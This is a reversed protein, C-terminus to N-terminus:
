RNKPINIAELLCIKSGKGSFYTEYETPINEQNLESSHLDHTINKIEWGGSVLQNVTFSFFMSNDTKFSLIGNEKLISKYLELFSSHTLRRKVHGAKPWPDSFNLYIRDASGPSFFKVLDKADANIFVINNIKEREANEAALLIIDTKKELAYIKVDSYREALGCAFGGKGCGIEIFAKNECNIKNDNDFLHSVRELREERHKKRRMRM